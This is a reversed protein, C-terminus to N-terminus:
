QLASVIADAMMKQGHNGFHVVDLYDVDARSLDLDVLLAMRAYIERLEKEYGSTNASSMGFPEPQLVHFMDPRLKRMEQVNNYYKPFRKEIQGPIQPSLGLMLDNAGDVVIVREFGPNNKIQPIENESLNGGGAVNYWYGGLRECALVWWEHDADSAGVGYAVSAGVVLTSKGTGCYRSEYPGHNVPAFNPWKTEPYFHNASYSVIVVVSSYFIARVIIIPRM